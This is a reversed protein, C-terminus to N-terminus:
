VIHNSNLLFSCIHAFVFIAINDINDNNDINNMQQFGRDHIYHKTELIGTQQQNEQQKRLFIKRRNQWLFSCCFIEFCLMKIEQRM